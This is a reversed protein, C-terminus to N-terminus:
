LSAVAMLQSIAAVAATESRLVYPGISIPIAGNQDLRQYEEPAFDGEPGIFLTAKKFSAVQKWSKANEELSGVFISGLTQSELTSKITSPPRLEPLWPNGSQKCAEILQTNWKELKQPIDKVHVLTRETELPQIHTIGLETAQKLITDFTKGKTIAIALTVELEPRKITRIATKQLITRKRHAVEISCDWEIGCGNFVIVQQGTRARNTAVLHHSEFPSLEITESDPDLPSAYCRFDTM